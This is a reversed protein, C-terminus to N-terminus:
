SAIIKAVGWDNIYTRIGKLVFRQTSDLDPSLEGTELFKKIDAEDGLCITKGTPTLAYGKGDRYFIQGDESFYGTEKDQM